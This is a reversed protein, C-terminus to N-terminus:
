TVLGYLHKCKTLFLSVVYLSVKPMALIPSTLINLYSMSICARGGPDTSFIDKHDPVVRAVPYLTTQIALTRIAQNAHHSTINICSKVRNRIM